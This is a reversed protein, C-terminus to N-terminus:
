KCLCSLLTVVISILGAVISILGIRMSIRTAHYPHNLYYIFKSGKSVWVESIRKEDSSLLRISNPTLAIRGKLDAINSKGYFARHISKDDETTVKIVTLLKLEDGQKNRPEGYLEKFLRGDIIVKDDFRDAEYEDLRYVGANRGGNVYSYSTDVGDTLGKHPKVICLLDVKHMKPCFLKCLDMVEGGVRVAGRLVQLYIYM